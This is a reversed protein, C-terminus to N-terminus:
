VQSATCAIMYGGSAAVLDVVATTKVGATKLRAFHAAALGYDTM